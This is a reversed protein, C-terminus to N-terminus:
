ACLMVNGHEHKAPLDGTKTSLDNDLRFTCGLIRSESLRMIGDVKVIMENGQLWGFFHVSLSICDDDMEGTILYEESVM